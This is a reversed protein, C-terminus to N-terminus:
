HFLYLQTSHDMVWVRGFLDGAVGRGQGVEGQEPQRKPGPVRQQGFQSLVRVAGRGDSSSGTGPGDLSVVSVCGSWSGVLLLDAGLRCLATPALADADKAGGGVAVAGASKVETTYAAFSSPRPVQLFREVKRTRSGAKGATGDGRGRSGIYSGPEVALGTGVSPSLCAVGRAQQRSVFLRGQADAALGGIRESFRWGDPDEKYELVVETTPQKSSSAGGSGSSGGSGGRSVAAVTYCALGVPEETVYVRSPVTSGTSPDAAVHAEFAVLTEGLKRGGVSSYAVLVAPRTCHRDWRLWVSGDPCLAM